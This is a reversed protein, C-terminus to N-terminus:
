ATPRCTTNGTGCSTCRRWRRTKLGARTASPTSGGHTRFFNDVPVHPNAFPLGIDNKPPYLGTGDDALRGGEFSRIADAWAKGPGYMINGDIWPTIENLQNRPLAPGRGTELHYRARRFPMAKNGACEPDYLPDCAPIPINHYEPPCGPRQGDMIEEVLQQGFWQVHFFPPPYSFSRSAPTHSLVVPRVTMLATRNLVSPVGTSGEFFRRSLTRPNPRDGGNPKFVGDSYDFDAQRTFEEDIFGWTQCSCPCPLASPLSIHRRVPVPSLSVHPRVPFALNHFDSTM